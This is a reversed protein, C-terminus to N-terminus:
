QHARATRTEARGRRFIETQNCDDPYGLGDVASIRGQNGQLRANAPRCTDAFLGAFVFNLRPALVTQEAQALKRKRRAAPLREDSIRRRAYGRAAPQAMDM